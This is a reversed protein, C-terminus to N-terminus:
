LHLTNENRAALISINKKPNFVLLRWLYIGLSSRFLVVPMEIQKRKINSNKIVRTFIYFHDFANIVPFYKM